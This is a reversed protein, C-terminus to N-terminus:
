ANGWTRYFYYIIHVALYGAFTTLSLFVLRELLKELKLSLDTFM